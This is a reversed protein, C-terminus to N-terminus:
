LGSGNYLLRNPSGTGAAAVYGKSALATIRKAVEAPSGLSEKGMLYAVVGAVHPAAMSTGSLTLTASNSGIYSSTIGSGPAFIDLVGGYNSYEARVDNGDTAGVTIAASASGPSYNGAEDGSNGAAVVFTLGSSVAATVADNMALSYGSELSMNAVTKKKGAAHHAAWQIGAIVGSITGSGTTDLVKVAILCVKKAIGFHRGGLTGAVHTGHGHGDTNSSDVVNHGWIARGLFETHSIQIGTDIVYATVGHGATDDYVYSTAGRARKSVRGLGWSPAAAETVLANIQAVRDPEVYAVEERKAIEEITEKDFSGAYGKLEGLNYTHTLGSLGTNRKALRTTAWSQHTSLASSSINSNLVVIYSGEIIDGAKLARATPAGLAGQLATATLILHHLFYM